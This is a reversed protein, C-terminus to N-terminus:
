GKTHGTAIYNEYRLAISLVDDTTYEIVEPNYMSGRFIPAKCTVTVAQELAKARIEQTNM